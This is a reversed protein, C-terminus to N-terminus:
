ESSLPASEELCGAMLQEYGLAEQPIWCGSKWLSELEEGLRDGLWTRALGADAGVCEKNDRKRGNSLVWRYLDLAAEVKPENPAAKRNFDTPICVGKPDLDGLYVAGVAQVERLVQGLAAGTKIFAEGSGYVVASYRKADHNWEGFSWFSNHNEVVLVPRGPADAQRYPLPQAARFCGITKLPLHGGFISDSSGCLADLRKEDGFIELSREKIPVQRFAGRRRLLFENISKAAAFQGTKLLPWFGLEPVWAVGSYDLQPQAPKERALQVWNPLAPSGVSEWSGPAPLTIHGDAELQRLQALLLSGREPSNQVDPYLSYFHRKLDELAVRKRPSAQLRALFASM